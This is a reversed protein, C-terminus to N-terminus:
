EEGKKKMSSVREKTPKQNCVQLGRAVSANARPWEGERYALWGEWRGRKAHWIIVFYIDTSHIDGM